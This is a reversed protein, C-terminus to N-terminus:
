GVDDIEMRESLMLLCCFEIMSYEVYNLLGRKKEGMIGIYIKNEGQQPHIQTLFSPSTTRIKVSIRFM